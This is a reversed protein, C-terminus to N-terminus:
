GIVENRFAAHSEQILRAMEFDRAMLCVLTPISPSIECDKMRSVFAEAGNRLNKEAIM